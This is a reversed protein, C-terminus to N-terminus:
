ISGTGSEVGCWTNYHVWYGPIDDEIASCYSFFLSLGNAICRPRHLVSSSPYSSRFFLTYYIFSFLFLFLFPFVARLGSSRGIGQYFFALDLLFTCTIYLRMLNPLFFVTGTIGKRSYNVIQGPVYILVASRVFVFIFLYFVQGFTRNVKTTYINCVLRTRSM